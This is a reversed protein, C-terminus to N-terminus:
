KNTDLIYQLSNIRDRQSQRESHLSVIDYPAEDGILSAEYCKAVKYDSSSLLNKLEEIKNKIKLRDFVKDYKYSIRDGNDYPKVVVIYDEDDSVAKDPNFDDIPKCGDMEHTYSVLRGCENIYGYEM